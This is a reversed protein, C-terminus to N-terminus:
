TKLNLGPRLYEAETGWTAVSTFLKFRGIKKNEVLGNIKTFRPKLRDWDLGLNTNVAFRLNPSSNLDIFDLLRDLQSTLFPEGGTVRLIQLHPYAIPLCEWFSRTYIDDAKAQEIDETMESIAYHRRSTIDVDGGNRVLAYWQSSFKPSFYLCSFQCPNNFSVALHQPAPNEVNLIKATPNALDLGFGTSKFVRDSTEGIDEINWCHNCGDPREGALM